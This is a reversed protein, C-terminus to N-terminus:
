GHSFLAKFTTGFLNVRETQNMLTQGLHHTKATKDSSM